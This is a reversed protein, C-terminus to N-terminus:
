LSASRALKDSGPRPLWPEPGIAEDSDCAAGRAEWFCLALAGSAAGMGLAGARATKSVGCCNWACGSKNGSAVGTEAEAEAEAEEEEEVGGTVKTGIALARPLM